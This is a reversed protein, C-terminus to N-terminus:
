KSRSFWWWLLFIGAAAMLAVPAKKKIIDLIAAASVYDTRRVVPGGEYEPGRTINGGWMAPNDTSRGPRQDTHFSAVGKENVYVGLGTFRKMGKLVNWVHLPNQGPWTTDVADGHFHRSTVRGDPRYDSLVVPKVGVLSAATDLNSVVEWALKRPYDFDAPTLFALSSWQEPSIM